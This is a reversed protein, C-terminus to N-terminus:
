LLPIDLFVVDLGDKQYGFGVKVSTSGAASETVAIAPSTGGSLGAGNATMLPVNTNRFRGGFTVVVPTGPLAGGSTDLDGIDINSLLVLAALVAAASANYAIAATTQGDFTLTFDGGNPTGTITITQTENTGLDGTSIRGPTTSLYLPGGLVTLGSYGSLAGRRHVSLGQVSGARANGFVFGRVDAKGAVNGDALEIRNDTRIRVLDGSEIAEAPLFTGIQDQIYDGGRLPRIGANQTAYVNNVTLIGM